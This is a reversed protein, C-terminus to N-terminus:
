LRIFCIRVVHLTVPLSFAERILYINLFISLIPGFSFCGTVLIYPKTAIRSLSTSCHVISFWSVWLVFLRSLLAVSEPILPVSKWQSCGPTRPFRLIGYSLFLVSVNCGEQHYWAFRQVSGHAFWWDTFQDFVFRSGCIGFVVNISTDSIIMNHKRCTLDVFLLRWGSGLSSGCLSSWVQVACCILLASLCALTPPPHDVWLSWKPCRLLYQRYEVLSSWM